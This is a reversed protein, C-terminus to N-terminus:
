IIKHIDYLTPTFEMAQAGFKSKFWYLETGSYENKISSSYPHYPHSEHNILSSISFIQVLSVSIYSPFNSSYISSHVISLPFYGLVSVKVIYPRLKKHSM